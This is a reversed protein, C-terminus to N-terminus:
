QPDDLLFHLFCTLFFLFCNIVASNSSWNLALFGFPKHVLKNTHTKLTKHKNLLESFLYYHYNSYMEHVNRTIRQENFCTNM